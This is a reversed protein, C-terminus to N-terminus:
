SLSERRCSEGALMTWQAPVISENADPLYYSRHLSHQNQFWFSFSKCNSRRDCLLMHGLPRKVVQQSFLHSLTKKTKHERRVSQHELDAWDFHSAKECILINPCVFYSNKAAARVPVSAGIGNASCGSPQSWRLNYSKTLVCKLAPPRIALTFNTVTRKLGNFSRRVCFTM